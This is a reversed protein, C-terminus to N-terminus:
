VASPRSTAGVAELVGNTARALSYREMKADLAARLQTTGLIPLVREVADAMSAPDDLVFTAGTQGEDVLDPGCGVAGSVVAPTRCAMAENVVLGWTEGGDSPLALLDAAAYYTPLETQNKFGAFHTPVDLTSATERVEPELEGSGVYLVRVDHGRQRLVSAAQVVAAPRKKHIFKGAFMLCVTDDDYGLEERLSRGWGSAEAHARFFDNDVFHPVFHMRGPDAGYHLYYDQAREGVVLYGDFRPIFARYVVEKALRHLASRPGLLQSDGRILLPTGTRWCAVIAQWFSQNYWGTVLFADFRGDRIVRAIQPTSCGRFTDTSPRPSRNELFTHPYGETLPVDWEFAIGFGADAQGQATQRHAFYVELDLEGALARYLPAHYQIPHTALVGLKM